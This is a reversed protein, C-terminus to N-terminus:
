YPRSIQMHFAYYYQKFFTIASQASNINNKRCLDALTMLKNMAVTQKNTALVFYILTNIVPQPLKMEKLKRIVKSQPHLSPIYEQVEMLVDETTNTELFEALKREKEEIIVTEDFM